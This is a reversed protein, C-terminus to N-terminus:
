KIIFAQLFLFCGFCLSLFFTVLLTLSIRDISTSSTTLFVDPSASNISSLWFLWWDKGLSYCRKILPSFMGPSNLKCQTNIFHWDTIVESKPETHKMPMRGIMQACPVQVERFKLCLFCLCFYSRLCHM